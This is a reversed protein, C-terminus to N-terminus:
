FILVHVHQSILFGIFSITMLLFSIMWLLKRRFRCILPAFVVSSVLGVSTVIFCSLDPHDFNLTEFLSPAFAMIGNIGSFQQGMHLIILSITALRFKREKLFEIISLKKIKSSKECSDVLEDVEQYRFHRGRLSKYIKITKEVDQTKNYIYKPSEKSIIVAACLVANLIFTLLHVFNWDFKVFRYLSALSILSVGVNVGVQLFPKFKGELSPPLTEFMLLVASVMLGAINYVDFM